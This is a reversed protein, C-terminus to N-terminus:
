RRPQGIRRLLVEGSEPSFLLNRTWEGGVDRAVVPIREAALLELALTVNREGIPFLGVSVDLVAAGGFVKAVLRERRCGLQLVRELLRAVAVNGYRPSPLGEGNWFPLLYHNMGGARAEPDWLCVAVCSGLVTRVQGGGRAAHIMGPLLPVCAAQEASLTVRPAPARESDSM